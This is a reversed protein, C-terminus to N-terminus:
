KDLCFKCLTDTGGMEQNTLRFNELGFIDYIFYVKDKIELKHRILKNSSKYEEFYYM